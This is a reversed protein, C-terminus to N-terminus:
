ALDAVREKEIHAFSNWLQAFLVRSVGFPTSGTVVPIVVSIEARRDFAEARVSVRPM